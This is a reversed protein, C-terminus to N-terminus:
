IALTVIWVDAPADHEIAYTVGALVGLTACLSTGSLVLAFPRAEHVHSITVRVRDPVPITVTVHALALTDVPIAIPQRRNPLTRLNGAYPQRM